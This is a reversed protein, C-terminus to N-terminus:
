VFVPPSPPLTGKPTSTPPPPVPASPAWPVMWPPSRVKEERELPKVFWANEPDVLRLANIAALYCKAQFLFRHTLLLTMITMTDDSDESENRGGGGGSVGSVGGGGSIGSVGGSVGGGGGDVGDGDGGGGDRVGGDDVYFNDYGNSNDDDYGNDYKLYDDDDM